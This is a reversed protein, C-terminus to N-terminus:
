VIGYFICHDVCDIRGVRPTHHSPLGISLPKGTNQNATIGKSHCLYFVQEIIFIRYDLNQRKLIPHMHRVFISLQESRNRYPIILAMQQSHIWIFCVLMLSWHPDLPLLGLRGRIKPSFFFFHSFSSFGAPCTLYVRGREKAWLRSGGSSVVIKGCYLWVPHFKDLHVGTIYWFRFITNSWM